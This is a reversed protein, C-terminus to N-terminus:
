ETASPVIRWLGVHANRAAIEASVYMMSEQRAAVAWGNRVMWDGLDVAGVRCIAVVRKATDIAREDCIVMKDHAQGMLAATVDAGCAWIRGGLVCSQTTEPAIIGFLRIQQQRIALTSGDIVRASGSISAAHAHTPPLLAM